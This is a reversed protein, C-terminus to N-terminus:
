FKDRLVETIQTKIQEMGLVTPHGNGKDINELKVIETGYHEAAAILGNTIKEKLGCNVINVIKAKPVVNKLRDFLYCTAPLTKYLDQETWDAYQLEGIPSGAWSDNTGGFVLVTDIDNEEFFGETILKELRGVFSVKKYDKGEYGTHCITTGSFSTNLVLNADNENMLKHWWTEQVKTVGTDTESKKDERGYYPWCDKAIYGAYTSYSDGIILVKGFKM